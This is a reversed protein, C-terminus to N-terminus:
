DLRLMEFQRPQDVVETKLLIASNNGRFFVIYEIQEKGDTMVLEKVSYEYAYKKKEGQHNITVVTDASIFSLKKFRDTTVQWRGLLKEKDLIDIQEITQEIHEYIGRRLLSSAFSSVMILAVGLGIIKFSQLSFKLPKPPMYPLGLSERFTPLDSKNIVYTKSWRDHWGWSNRGLCSLFEFPILRLFTRAIIQNFHPREGKENVVITNSFWKGITWQLHYEFFIYYFPSVLLVFLSSIHILPIYNILIVLFQIIVYDLIFHLFRTGPNVTSVPIGMKRPIPPAVKEIRPSSSLPTTSNEAQKNENSSNERHNLEKEVAKVLDDQYHERNTLITQLEKDTKQKVKASFMNENAM